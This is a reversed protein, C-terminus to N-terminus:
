HGVSEHYPLILDDGELCCGTEGRNDYQHQNFLCLVCMETDLSLMSKITCADVSLVAQGLCRPLKIYLSNVPFSRSLGLMGKGSDSKM